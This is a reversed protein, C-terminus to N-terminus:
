HSFQTLLVYYIGGCIESINIISILNSLNSM